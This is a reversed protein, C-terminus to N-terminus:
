WKDYKLNEHNRIGSKLGKIESMLVLIWFERVAQPLCYYRVIDREHRGSTKGLLITFSTCLTLDTQWLASPPWLRYWHCVCVQCTLIKSWQGYFAAGLLLLLVSSESIQCEVPSSKQGNNVYLHACIELIDSINTIVERIGRSWLPSWTHPAWPCQRSM